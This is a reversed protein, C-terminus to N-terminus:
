LNERIKLLDCRAKVKEQISEPIELEYDGSKDMFLATYAVADIEIEQNIYHQSDVRRLPQFYTEFEAFWRKLTAKDEPSKKPHEIQYWQHAHRSEHILSAIITMESMNGILDTNFIILQEDKDFISLISHYDKPLHSIIVQCPPRGQKTALSTEIRYLYSESIM